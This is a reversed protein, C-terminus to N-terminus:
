SRFPFLNFFLFYFLILAKVRSIGKSNVSHLPRSPHSTRYQNGKNFCKLQMDAFNIKIGIPCAALGTEMEFSHM